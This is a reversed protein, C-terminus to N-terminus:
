TCFGSSMTSNKGLQLSDQVLRPFPFSILDRLYLSRWRQFKRKNLRKSSKMLKTSLKRTRLSQSQNKFLQPLNPPPLLSSSTQNSCNRIPKLSPVREGTNNDFMKDIISEPIPSAAKKLRLPVKKLPKKSCLHPPKTVFNSIKATSSLRPWRIKEKDKKKEAEMIRNHIRDYANKSSQDDPTLSLLTHCNKLAKLDDGLKEYAIMRRYFSKSSNPDLKIAKSADDICESYKELALFCQSRNSYFVPDDDCLEIARTYM